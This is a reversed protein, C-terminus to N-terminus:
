RSGLCSYEVLATPVQDCNPAFNVRTFKEYAGAAVLTSLSSLWGGAVDLPWRPFGEVAPGKPAHFMDIDPSICHFSVNM